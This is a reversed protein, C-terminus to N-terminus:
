CVPKCLLAEVEGPKLVKGVSVVKGNVVLAPVRMVGYETVKAMDTIYEAELNLGMNKVAEKANEYLQHCSSCGAGLVQISRIGEMAEICGGNM